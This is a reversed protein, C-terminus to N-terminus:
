PPTTSKSLSATSWALRMLLFAGPIFGDYRAVLAEAATRRGPRPSDRPAKETTCCSRSARHLRRGALGARAKSSVSPGGGSPVTCRPHPPLCNEGHLASGKVAYTKEELRLEHKSATARRGQSPCYLKNHSSSLSERRLSACYTLKLPLWDFPSPRHDSKSCNAPTEKLAPVEV